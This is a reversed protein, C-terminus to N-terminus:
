MGPIGGEEGDNSETIVDEIVFKEIELEPEVYVSKMM